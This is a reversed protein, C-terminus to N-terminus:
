HTWRLALGPAGRDGSIPVVSWNGPRERGELGHASSVFDGILFGTGLGLLVNWAFHKDDNIRSWGTLVPLSYVFGKGLFKGTKKWAGDDPDIRFFLRDLPVSMSAVISTHGSIGHGGGTFFRLKGGEDPRQESLVFQGIETAVATFLASESLVLGARRTSESGSLRGIVYTSLAAIPIIAEGFPRTRAALENTEEDRRTQADGALDLKNSELYIAGLALGAYALGDRMTPHIARFTIQRATMRLDGWDSLGETDTGPAIERPQLLGDIARPPRMEPDAGWAPLVAAPALCIVSLLLAVARLRNLPAGEAPSEVQNM